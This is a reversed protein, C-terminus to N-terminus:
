DNDNEVFEFDVGEIASNYRGRHYGQIQYMHLWMVNVIEGKKYTPTKRPAGTRSNPTYLDRLIRVDKSEAFKM